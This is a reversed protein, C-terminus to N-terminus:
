CSTPLALRHALKSTSCATSFLMLPLPALVLAAPLVLFMASYRWRFCLSNFCSVINLLRRGFPLSYLFNRFRESRYIRRAGLWRILMLPFVSLLVIFIVLEISSPLARIVNWGLACSIAALLFLGIVGLVRGFAVVMIAKTRKEPSVQNLIYGSKVIDGGSSSPM